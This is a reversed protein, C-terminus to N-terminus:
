KGIIFGESDLTRIREGNHYLKYIGDEKHPNGRTKEIHYRKYKIKKSIKGNQDRFLDLDVQDDSKKIKNSVGDGYNKGSGSSSSGGDSMQDRSRSRSNDALGRIASSIQGLGHASATIGLGIAPAGGIVGIGTLSLGAGGLALAGGLFFEGVGIFLSIVDGSIQGLRASNSLNGLSNPDQRGAGWFGNSGIANCFGMGFALTHYFANTLWSSGGDPQVDVTDLWITEKNPVIIDPFESRPM